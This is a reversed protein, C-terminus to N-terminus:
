VLVCWNLYDCFQCKVLHTLGHNQHFYQFSKKPSFFFNKTGNKIAFLGEVSCFCWNSFTAFSVNKWFQLDMTKTLLKFNRWGEQKPWILKSFTNPATKSPFCAIRSLHFVDIYFSLQVIAMKGFPNIALSSMKQVANLWAFGVRFM